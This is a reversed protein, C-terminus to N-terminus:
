FDYYPVLDTHDTNKAYQMVGDRNWPNHTYGLLHMVEHIALHEWVTRNDPTPMMWYYITILAANYSPDAKGWFGKSEKNDWDQIMGDTVILIVDM